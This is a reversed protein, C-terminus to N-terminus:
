CLFSHHTEHCGMNLFPSFILQPRETKKKLSQIGGNPPNHPKSGRAFWPEVGAAAFGGSGPPSKPWTITTSWASSRWTARYLTPGLLRLPMPAKHGDPDAADFTRPLQRACDYGNSGASRHPRQEQMGALGAAPPPWRWICTPM